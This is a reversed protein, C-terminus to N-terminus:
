KVGGTAFKTAADIGAGLLGGLAASEAQAQSVRVNNIAQTYEKNAALYNQMAADKTSTANKAIGTTIDALTKSAAEKELAQAAPTAGSVVSSAGSRRNSTILMDRAEALAAQNESRQLMDQNALDQYYDMTDKKATELDKISKKYAGNTGFLKSMFGM